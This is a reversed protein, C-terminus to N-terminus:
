FIFKRFSIAAANESFRCVRITLMVICKSNFSVVPNKDAPNFQQFSNHPLLPEKWLWSIISLEIWCREIIRGDTEHTQDGYCSTIVHSQSVASHVTFHISPMSALSIYTNCCEAPNFQPNFQHAHPFATNNASSQEPSKSCSKVTDRSPLAIWSDLM